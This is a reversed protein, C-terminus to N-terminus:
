QGYPADPEDPPATHAGTGPGAALGTAAVRPDARQADEDAPDAWSVRLQWDAIPVMPGTGDDLRAVVQALLAGEGIRGPVAEFQLLYERTEAGWAGTGYCLSLGSQEAKVQTLREVTPAVQRARALRADARTRVELVIDGLTRGMADALTAAMERALRDRGVPDDVIDVTGSLAAAVARLEVPRWGRGVGRADCAFRGRWTDLASALEGPGGRDASASVLLAHRLPNPHEALLRGALDVWGGLRAGGAGSGIPVAEIAAAAEALTTEDAVALRPPADAEKAPEPYLVRAEDTGAVLAFATGPRLTGLAARAGSRLADPWGPQAAMAETVDLVIVEARPQPAAAAPAPDRTVALVAMVEATGGNAVAPVLQNYHGELALGHGSTSGM